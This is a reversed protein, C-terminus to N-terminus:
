RGAERAFVREVVALGARRALGITHETGHTTADACRLALVTVDYSGVTRAVEAVMAANRVLPWRRHAPTGRMPAPEGAWAGIRDGFGDTTSGDLRYVWPVGGLVHQVAWRDPGRADGTVVVAPRRADLEARLWARAEAHGALARSGTVLILAPRDSRSM